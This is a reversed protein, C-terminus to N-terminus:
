FTALGIVCFCISLLIHYIGQWSGKDFDTKQINPSSIHDRLIYTLSSGATKPTHFIIFKNKHSILM